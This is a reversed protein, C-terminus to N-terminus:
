PRKPKAGTALQLANWSQQRSVRAVALRAQATLLDRQAENLRVLSTQGATYEKEVLDRNKEVLRANATQLDLQEKAAELNVLAEQVESAVNVKAAMLNKEAERLTARAESIRGKRRMGNFLDYSLSLSVTERFDEGEFGMSSERNGEVGASVAAEPYYDGKANRVGAEAQKVLLEVQLLDPRDGWAREILSSGDTPGMAEAPPEKLAALAVGKPVIGAELGMLRGLAALALRNDERASILNARASNVRVEFNLEDSLSGTGVQRRLKAEELQRLNFAEDAEAIAINESALLAGFYVSALASLIGREAEWLARVQIDEGYKAQLISCKRSFGDFALWTANVGVRYDEQPSSVSFGPVDSTEDQWISSYSASGAVQPWYSSRSQTVLAKAQEVREAAAALSPNNKLAIREANALDLVQIGALPDEQASEGVVPTWGAVALLCMWSFMFGIGTRM